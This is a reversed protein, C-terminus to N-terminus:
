DAGDCTQKPEFGLLHTKCAAHSIDTSRPILPSATLDFHPLIHRPATLHQGGTAVTGVGAGDAPIRLQESEAQLSWVSVPQVQSCGSSFVFLEGTQSM